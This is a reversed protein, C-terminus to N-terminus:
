LEALRKEISVDYSTELFKNLYMKAKTYNQLKYQYIDALFLNVYATNTDTKLLEQLISVANEYDDTKYFIVAKLYKIETKNGAAEKSRELFNVAKAYNTEVIANEAITLLQEASYLQVYLVQAINKYDLNITITEYAKKEIKITYTTMNDLKELRFHGYIDSTVCCDSKNYPENYYNEFNNKTHETSPEIKHTVTITANLVPMNDYDYIMGNLPPQIQSVSKCAITFTVTILLLISTIFLVHNKFKFFIM